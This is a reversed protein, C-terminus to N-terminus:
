PTRVEVKTEQDDDHGSDEDDWDPWHDSPHVEEVCERILACMAERQHSNLTIDARVGRKIDKWKEVIAYQLNSLTAASPFLYDRGLSSPVSCIGSADLEHIAFPVLADNSRETCVLQCCQGLSHFITSDSVEDTIKRREFELLAAPFMYLSITQEESNWMITNCPVSRRAQAIEVSVEWIDLTRALQSMMNWYAQFIETSEKTTYIEWGRGFLCYLFITTLTRVTNREVEIDQLSAAVPRWLLLFDGAHTSAESLGILDGKGHIFSYKPNGVWHFSSLEVRATKPADVRKQPEYMEFAKSLTSNLFDIGLLRSRGHHYWWLSLLLQLVLSVEPSCQSFLPSNDSIYEVLGVKMCAAYLSYHQLDRQTVRDKWPELNDTPELDIIIDLSAVMDLLRHDVCREMISLQSVMALYRLWGHTREYLMSHEHMNCKVARSSDAERSPLTIALKMETEILMQFVETDSHGSLESRVWQEDQENIFDLACRHIWDVKTDDYRWTEMFVPDWQVVKRSKVLMRRGESTRLSPEDPNAFEKAVHSLAWVRHYDQHPSCNNEFAQDVHIELLGHSQSVIQLETKKFAQLLGLYGFPQDPIRQGALLAVSPARNEFYGHHLEVDEKYYDKARKLM